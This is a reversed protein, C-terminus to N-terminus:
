FLLENTIGQRLVSWGSRDKKEIKIPDLGIVKKVEILSIYRSKRRSDWFNEDYHSCIPVSYEEKIKDYSNDDLNNFYKVEGAIFAGTVMGGSAKLIVIDGKKVRNYPSVKNISFRSEIKKEGKYILALFPENFIALHMGVKPDILFKEITGGWTRDDKLEEILYNILKGKWKM